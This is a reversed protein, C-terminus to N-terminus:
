VTAWFPDRFVQLPLPSAPSPADVNSCVRLPSSTDNRRKILDQAFTSKSLPFRVKERKGKGEKERKRGSERERDSTKQRKGRRRERQALKAGFVDKVNSQQFHEIYNAVSLRNRQVFATQHKTRPSKCSWEFSNWIKTLFSNSLFLSLFKKGCM